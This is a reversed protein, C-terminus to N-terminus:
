SPLFRARDVVVRRHTGQAAVADGETVRVAFVIRRGDVGTVTATAHVGAGIHSPMLHDVNVNTGVTTSGDPVSGAIAAVAAEEVLAIVKPTGLVDVDGSGLAAATADSKVTYSITASLGESIM